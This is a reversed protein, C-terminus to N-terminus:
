RSMRKGEVRRKREKRLIHPNPDRRGGWTRRGFAACLRNKWALAEPSLLSDLRQVLAKLAGVRQGDGGLVDVLTDIGLDLANGRLHAHGAETGALHRGVEDAAHVALLQHRVREVSRDLLAHLFLYGIVLRARRPLRRVLAAFTM